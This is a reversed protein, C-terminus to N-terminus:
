GGIRGTHGAHIALHGPNRMVRPSCEWSSLLGAAPHEDMAPRSGDLRLSADPQWGREMALHYITGAGIRDPKFSAWAKATAAPVDKAAQASWGAFIDGGAEGLAGKLAMGIRVWSDYDLEANPLWKLAAEIAPLTGIQSHAQLHETRHDQRLAVSGCINPCCRM